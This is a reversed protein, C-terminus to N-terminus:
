YGLTFGGRLAVTERKTTRGAPACRPRVGGQRAVDGAAVGQGGGGAGVVALLLAHRAVGVGDGEGVAAQSDEEEGHTWLPTVAVRSLSADTWGRM